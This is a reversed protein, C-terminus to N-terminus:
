EGASQQNKAEMDPSAYEQVFEPLLEYAIKASGKTLVLTAKEIIEKIRGGKKLLKKLQNRNYKHTVEETHVADWEDQRILGEDRLKLMDKTYDYSVAPPKIEARFVQGEFLTQDNEQMRQMIVSQLLDRQDKLVKLDKDIEALLKIHEELTNGQHVVEGSVPNVVTYGQEKTEEENGGELVLQQQELVENNTLAM